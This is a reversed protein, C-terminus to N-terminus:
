ITKRTKLVDLYYDDIEDLNPNLIYTQPLIGNIIVKRSFLEQTAKRCETKTLLACQKVIEGSSRQVSGGGPASQNFFKYLSCADDTPPILSNDIRELRAWGDGAYEEEKMEVLIVNKSAPIGTRRVKTIVSIKTPDPYETEKHIVLGTDCGEGVISGHGRVLSTMESEKLEELTMKAVMKKSHAALMIACKNGSAEMIATLDDRVLEGLNSSNENFNIKDNPIMALLSDMRIFVPKVTKILDIIKALEAKKGFRFGTFSFRYLDIKKFDVGLGLCFRNIIKDLSNVPTEEDIIVAPGQCVDMGFVPKGAAICCAIWCGVQTKFSGECATDMIRHGFPFWGDILWDPIQLDFDQLTKM